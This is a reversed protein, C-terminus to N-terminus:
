RAPEHLPIPDSGGSYLTVAHSCPADGCPECAHADPLPFLEAGLSRMRTEVTPEEPSENRM